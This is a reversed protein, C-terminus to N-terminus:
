LKNGLFSPKYLRIEKDAERIQSDNEHIKGKEDVYRVIKVNSDFYYRKESIGLIKPNKILSAEGTSTVKISHKKYIM